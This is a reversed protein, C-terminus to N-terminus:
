QSKHASKAKTHSPEKKQGLFFLRDKETILGDTDSDLGLLRRNVDTDDARPNRDDARRRVELWREAEEGSLRIQFTKYPPPKKMRPSM